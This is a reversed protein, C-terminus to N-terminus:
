RVTNIVKEIEQKYTNFIGSSQKLSGQFEEYKTIYLNLQEKLAKERQQM